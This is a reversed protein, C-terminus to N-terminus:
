LESKDNSCFGLYPDQPPAGTSLQPYSGPRVKNVAYYARGAPSGLQPLRQLPLRPLVQARSEAGWPTNGPGKLFTEWFYPINQM